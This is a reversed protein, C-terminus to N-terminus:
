RIIELIRILAGSVPQGQADQVRGRLVNGPAVEAPNGAELRVSLSEASPAAHDISKPRCGPPVIVVRYLWGADLSEFEFNGHVDTQTRLPLRPYRDTIPTEPKREAHLVMVLASATKKDPLIVHGRLIPRDASFAQFSALLLPILNITKM